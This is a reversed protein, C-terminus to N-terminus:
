TAPRGAHRRTHVLHLGSGAGLGVVLAVFVALAFPLSSMGDGSDTAVVPATKFLKTPAVTETSYGHEQARATERASAREPYPDFPRGFVTGKTGSLSSADPKSPQEVAQAAPAFLTLCALTVLMTRRIQSAFTM